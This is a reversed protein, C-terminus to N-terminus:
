PGNAANSWTWVRDLIIRMKCLCPLDILSSRRQTSGANASDSTLVLRPRQHWRCVAAAVGPTWGEQVGIKWPIVARVVVEWWPAGQQRWRCALPVRLARLSGVLNASVIHSFALLYSFFIVIKKGSLGSQTAVLLQNVFFCFCGPFGQGGGL